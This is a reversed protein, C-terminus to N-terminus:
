KTSAIHLMLEGSRQLSSITRMVDKFFVGGMRLQRITERSWHMRM